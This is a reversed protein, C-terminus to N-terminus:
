ERVGITREDELVAGSSDEVRIWLTEGSGGLRRHRLDECRLASLAVLLAIAALPRSTM